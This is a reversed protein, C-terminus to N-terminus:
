NIGVNLTGSLLRPLLLDRIRRLNANLKGLMSIQQLASNAFGTFNNMTAKDPCVVQSQEADGQSIFPQAAGRRPWFDDGLTALFLFETSISESTSWLRITNKICSWKGSAFWTKGCNAGIASLVVGKRDFDYHDMKGDLGSASYAAYGDEVYSAKTKSTDGWRIDTIDKLRKVEWGQPIPGLPSPVMKVKEHGPFRFHIFWERYLSRAMKELIKIRRQNNEILEDYASLISAIRRQVPLPPLVVPLEKLIGLNIGPVAVGIAKGLIHTVMQPCAFYYFLYISDAINKNPRLKLQKNSIIYEPYPGNTPILGVQGITGWCTFVLDGGAVHQAKYKTAQEESVFAFGQPVFRTLDDRLNNGRIVPIGSDVFYKSSINSGFPGAVCSHKEPAKIEDVALLQWGLPLPTKFLPHIEEAIRM